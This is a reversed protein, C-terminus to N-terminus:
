GGTPYVITGYGSYDYHTGPDLSDTNKDYYFLQYFDKTDLNPLKKKTKLNLQNKLYNQMDLLNHMGAIQFYTGNIMEGQGALQKTAITRLAGTYKQTLDIMEDWTLDTATNKEVAKLIKKYQTVSNLSVIKNVIKKVVERQRRQRGVDQEPDEHRMRAYALGKKGNLTQKGKKVHVGDLTFDIKNDVEIGGVADILDKLGKMNISIYHDIPIDLLNQVTEIAMKTGGYSYAANLKDYYIAEKDKTKKEGDYGIIKTYLDRDLSVVTTQKKKPNITILMMSDSRGQETRGLAGTDVGMLLISFPDSDNISVATKRKDFYNVKETIKSVTSSADGAFKIAYLSVSAVVVVLMGLFILIGIKVKKKLRRRKKRQVKKM